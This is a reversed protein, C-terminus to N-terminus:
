DALRFFPINIEGIVGITYDFSIVGPVKVEFSIFDGETGAGTYLMLMPSAEKYGCFITVLSKEFPYLKSLIRYFDEYTGGEVKSSAKKIMLHGLNEIDTQSSVKVQLIGFTENMSLSLSVSPCETSTLRITKPILTKELNQLQVSLPHSEKPKWTVKDIGTDTLVGLLLPNNTLMQSNGSTRTTFGWKDIIVHNAAPKSTGDEFIAGSIQHNSGDSYGVEKTTYWLFMEESGHFSMNEEDGDYLVCGFVEIYSFSITYNNYGGSRTVRMDSIVGSYLHKEIGEIRDEFMRVQRNIDETTFLNPFGKFVARLIKLSKDFPKQLLQSM